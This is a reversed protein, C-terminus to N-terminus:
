RFVRMARPTADLISVLSSDDGDASPSQLPGLLATCCATLDVTTADLLLDVHEERVGNSGDVAQLLGARFALFFTLITGLVLHAAFDPHTSVICAWPVYYVNTLGLRNISKQDVGFNSLIEDLPKLADPSHMLRLSSELIPAVCHSSSVLLAELIQSTKLMQQAMSMQPASTSVGDRSEHKKAINLTLLVAVNINVDVFVGDDLEDHKVHVRWPGGLPVGCLSKNILYEAAFLAFAKGVGLLQADDVRLVLGIRASADGSTPLTFDDQVLLRTVVAEVKERLYEKLDDHLAWSKDSGGRGKALLDYYLRMDQLWGDQEDNIM